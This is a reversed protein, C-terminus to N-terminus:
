AEFAGVAPDFWPTCLRQQAALAGAEAVWIAGNATDQRNRFADESFPAVGICWRLRAPAIDAPLRTASEASLAEGSALALALPANRRLPDDAPPALAVHAVTIRDGDREIRARGVPGPAYLAGAWDSYVGRDFVALARGNGDNRLRYRVYLTRADDAYFLEARMSVTQATGLEISREITNSHATATM